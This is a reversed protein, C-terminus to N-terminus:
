RRFLPGSLLNLFVGYAFHKSFKQAMFANSLSVTQNTLHLSVLGELLTDGESTWTDKEAVSFAM